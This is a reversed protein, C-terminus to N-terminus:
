KELLALAAENVQDGYGKSKWKILGDQGIVYVTPTAQVGYKIKVPSHDGRLDSLLKVNLDYNSDNIWEQQNRAFVFALVEVKNGHKMQFEKLTTRGREGMCSLGGFIVVTPKSAVMKSLDIEENQLTKAKFNVFESGLELESTENFLLMSQGYPSTKIEENLGELAKSLKSKDLKLRTRYLNQIGMYSNANELAFDGITQSLNNFLQNLSDFKEEKVLRKQETYFYSLKENLANQLQQEKGGIIEAKDMKDWSGKINLSTNELWFYHSRKKEASKYVIRYEKPHDVSGKFSFQGNSVTASDLVQGTENNALQINLESPANEIHGQIQFNEM